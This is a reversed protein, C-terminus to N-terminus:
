NCLYCRRYLSVSHFTKLNGSSSKIFNALPDHFAFNIGTTESYGFVDNKYNRFLLGSYDKTVASGLILTCLNSLVGSLSAM